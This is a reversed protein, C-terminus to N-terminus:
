LRDTLEVLGTAPERTTTLAWNTLALPSGRDVGPRATLQDFDPPGPTRLESDTGVSAFPVAVTVTVVPITAPSCNVTVALSLAPDNPVEGM